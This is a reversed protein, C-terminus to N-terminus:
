EKCDVWYHLHDDRTWGLKEYLAQAGTNDPTTELVLRRAGTERGFDRAGELLAAGVGLRRADEHVYLDNLIWDRALAVSSFTPYLQVFGVARADREAILVVSEGAQLRTELFRREADPSPSQGYFERYATFLPTLADLDSLAARRVTTESM